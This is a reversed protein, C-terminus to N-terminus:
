YNELIAHCGKNQYSKEFEALKDLLDYYNQQHLSSVTGLTNLLRAIMESETHLDAVHSLLELCIPHENSNCQLSAIHDSLREKRENLQDLEADHQLRLARARMLQENTQRLEHGVLNKTDEALQICANYERLAEARPDPRNEQAEVLGEIVSRRPRATSTGRTRAGVNM